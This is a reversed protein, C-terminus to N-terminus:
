HGRAGGSRPRGARSCVPCRDQWTPSTLVVVAYTVAHEMAARGTERLDLADSDLTGSVYKEWHDQARTWSDGHLRVFSPAFSPPVGYDNDAYILNKLLPILDRM